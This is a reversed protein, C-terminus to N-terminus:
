MRHCRIRNLGHIRCSSLQYVKCLLKSVDATNKVKRERGDEWWDRVVVLEDDVGFVPILDNKAKRAGKERKGGFAMM